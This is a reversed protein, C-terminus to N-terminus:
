KGPQNSLMIGSATLNGSTGTHALVIVDTGVALPTGTSAIITVTVAPPIEITQTGGPYEIVYHTAGATGTSAVSGNTMRSGGSPGTASVNGNTMRSASATSEMLRSGEGTGRLAEPFIHIETARETGDAQKESTIGVFSNPTVHSLDSPTRAYVTVPQDLHVSQAGSATTISVSTDTLAAITGRVASLAPTSSTTGGNMATNAAVSDTSSTDQKACAAGFSTVAALLLTTRAFRTRVAASAKPMATHEHRM